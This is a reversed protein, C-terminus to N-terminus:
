VADYDPPLTKDPGINDFAVLRDFQKQWDKELAPPLKAPEGPKTPPLTLRDLAEADLDDLPLRFYEAFPGTAGRLYPESTWLPKTETAGHFHTELKAVGEFLFHWGIAIRLLVLLWRTTINM